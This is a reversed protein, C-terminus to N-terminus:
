LNLGTVALSGNMRNIVINNRNGMVIGNGYIQQEAPEAIGIEHVLTRTFVSEKGLAIFDERSDVILSTGDPATISIPFDCLDALSELDRGSVTNQIKAAFATIEAAPNEKLSEAEISEMVAELDCFSENPAQEQAESEWASTESTDMMDPAAALSTTMYGCVAIAVAAALGAAPLKKGM